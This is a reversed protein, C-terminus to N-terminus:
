YQYYAFDVAMYRTYVTSSRVKGIQWGCRDAAAQAWSRLIGNGSLGISVNSSLTIPNTLTIINKGATVNYSTTNVVSGNGTTNVTSITITGSTACWLKIAEIRYGSLNYATIESALMYFTDGSTFSADGKLQNDTFNWNWVPTGLHIGNTSFNANKIVLKRGM